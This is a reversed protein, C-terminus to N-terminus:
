VRRRSMSKVRHRTWATSDLGTSIMMMMMMMMMM